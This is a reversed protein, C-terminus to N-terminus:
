DRRRGRDDATKQERRNEELREDTQKREVVNGIAQVQTYQESWAQKAQTCRSDEEALIRRQEAIAQELKDIFLQYERLRAPMGGQQMAQRYRQLYDERYGELDRLRARAEDRARRQTGYVSAADREKKEILRQIARFRKSGHKM